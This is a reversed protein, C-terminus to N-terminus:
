KEGVAVLDALRYIEVGLGIDVSATDALESDIDKGFEDGIEIKVEVM